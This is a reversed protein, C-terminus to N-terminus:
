YRKDEEPPKRFHERERDEEERVEAHNEKMRLKRRWDQHFRKSKPHTCVVPKFVKVAQQIAILAQCLACVETKM